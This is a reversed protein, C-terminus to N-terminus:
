KIRRTQNMVNEDSSTKEEGTLFFLVPPRPFPSVACLTSFTKQPDVEM